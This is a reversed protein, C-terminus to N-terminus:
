MKPLCLPQCININILPLGSITSSPKLGNSNAQHGYQQNVMMTIYGSALILYNYQLTDHCLRAVMFKATTWFALFFLYIRIHFFSFVFAFMLFCSVPFCSAIITFYSWWFVVYNRDYIGSKRKKDEHNTRLTEKTFYSIEIKVSYDQLQLVHKVPERM